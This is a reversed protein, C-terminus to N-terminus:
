ASININKNHFSQWVNEQDAFLVQNLPSKSLWKQLKESEKETIQGSLQKTILQLYKIKIPM